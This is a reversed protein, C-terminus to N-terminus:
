NGRNGGRAKGVKGLIGFKVGSGGTRLVEKAEDEVKTTRCDGILVIAVGRVEFCVEGCKAGVM